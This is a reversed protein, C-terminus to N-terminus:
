YYYHTWDGLQSLLYHGLLLEPHTFSTGLSRATNTPEIVWQGLLYHGLLLESHTLSTVQTAPRHRWLPERRLRRTARIQRWQGAHGAWGWCLVAPESDWFSRPFIIFFIFTKDSKIILLYSISFLNFISNSRWLKNPSWTSCLQVWQSLGRLGGEGQM